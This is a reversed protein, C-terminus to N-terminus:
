DEKWIGNGRGSESGSVGGVRRSVGGVRGDEWGVWPCSVVSSRPQTSSDRYFGVLSESTWERRTCSPHM